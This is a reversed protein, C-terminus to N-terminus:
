RVEKKERGRTNLFIGMILALVLLMISLAAGYGVNGLPISQRYILTGLFETAFNPGGM